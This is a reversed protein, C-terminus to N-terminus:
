TIIVTRSYSKTGYPKNRSFYLEILSSLAPQVSVLTFYFLSSFCYLAMLLYFTFNSISHFLSETLPIFGQSSSDRKSNFLVYAINTLELLLLPILSTEMPIPYFESLQLISLAAILAITFHSYVKLEQSMLTKNEEESIDDSDDRNQSTMIHLLNLSEEYNGGFSYNMAEM